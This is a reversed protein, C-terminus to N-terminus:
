SRSRACSSSRSGGLAQQGETRSPEDDVLEGEVIETEVVEALEPLAVTKSVESTDTM